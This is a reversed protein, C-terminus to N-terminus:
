KVFGRAKKRLEKVGREGAPFMFPRAKYNATTSRRAKRGQISFSTAARHRRPTRTVRGGLEQVGPAPRSQKAKGPLYIPGVLLTNENEFGFLITRLNNRETRYFPPKGPASYRGKQFYQRGTKTVRRRGYMGASKPPSSPAKKMSSRASKRIFAGTKSMLDAKGKSIRRRIERDFFKSKIEELTVFQTQIRLTM